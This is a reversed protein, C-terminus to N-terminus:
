WYRLMMWVPMHKRTKDDIDGPQIPAVNTIIDYWRTAAAERQPLNNYNAPRLFNHVYIDALTAADTTSVIFDSYPMNYDSSYIIWEGMPVTEEVLWKVQPTGDTAPYGHSNAWNIYYSAPTWQVLGFGVNYNGEDLNEWIGPNITSEIEMNGLMGAIANRSYGQYYLLSYVIIANNYMEDQTLWGNRQIWNPAIIVSGAEPNYIFGKLYYDRSAMYSMKYGNSASCEETWFYSPTNPPYASIPRYYGSCSFVVNGNSLIQEVTAVHGAYAGSASAWVATAGLAPSNGKQFDSSVTDYWTGADGLPLNLFRGAIEAARGYAYCTCNPMGYGAVYFPNQGYYWQSQYIGDKTLRPSFDAM